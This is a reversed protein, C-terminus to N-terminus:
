YVDYTPIIPLSPGFLNIKNTLLSECWEMELDERSLKLNDCVTPNLARLHLELVSVNDM